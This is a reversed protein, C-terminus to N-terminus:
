HVTNNGSLKSLANTLTEYTSTKAEEEEAQDKDEISKRVTDLSTEYIKSFKESVEYSTIVASANIKLETEDGFYNYKTMVAAYSGTDMAMRYKVELPDRLYLFLQGPSDDYDDIRGILESGDVMKLIRVSM